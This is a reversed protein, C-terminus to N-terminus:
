ISFHTVVRDLRVGDVMLNDLTARIRRPVPEVHDVPLIMQPYDNM